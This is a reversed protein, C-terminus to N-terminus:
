RKEPATPKKTWYRNRALESIGMSPADPATAPTKPAYKTKKEFARTSTITGRKGKNKGMTKGAETM